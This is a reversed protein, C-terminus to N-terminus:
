GLRIIIRNGPERLRAVEAKNPSPLFDWDRQTLGHIPGRTRLRYRAEAPIFNWDLRTLGYLPEQDENGSSSSQQMFIEQRLEEEGGKRVADLVGPLVRLHKPAKTPTPAHQVVPTSPVPSSDPLAKTEFDALRDISKGGYTPHTHTALQETIRPHVFVRQPFVTPSSEVIDDPSSPTSPEVYSPSPM